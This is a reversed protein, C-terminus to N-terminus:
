LNRNKNLIHKEIIQDLINLGELLRSNFGDKTTSFEKRDHLHLDSFFLIKSM